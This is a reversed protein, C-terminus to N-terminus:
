AADDDDKPNPAASPPVKGLMDIPLLNSQVTLADAGDIEPLNEKRRIENRSMVGNQAFTSYLKARGQSDARLLGEVNFEAYYVARESPAILARKISAEIRSLLPRLQLTLWGLILTEIGSGWATVGNAAHGILVPPVGYLRCVEEVHWGRTALLEQDRAPISVAQWEFGGELIGIRGANAAGQYPDILVRRAQERQEPTLTGAKANPDRFTFFGGPRMGNSFTRGATEETAMATGLIERGYAIPSLGVDGGLGWGRLHWIDTEDYIRRGHPDSYVYRLAGSEMREVTM